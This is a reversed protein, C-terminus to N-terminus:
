VSGVERPGVCGGMWDAFLRGKRWTVAAGKAVFSSTVVKKSDVLATDVVPPNLVEKPGNMSHRGLDAVESSWEAM